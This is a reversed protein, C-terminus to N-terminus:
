GQRQRERRERLLREKLARREGKTLKRQVPSLLSDSTFSSVATGLPTTSPLASRGLPPQPTSHPPDIKLWRDGGSTAVDEAEEGSEDAADSEDSPKQEAFRSERKPLLGEADLLVHRAHLGMAALLLLSGSMVGGMRFMVEDASSEAALWGLRIMIAFSFAVGAMSLAVIALWNPRMDMLLRSGVAGLLVVYFIAWWISGDGLLRAGTLDTMLERFVERLSAAQDTAL